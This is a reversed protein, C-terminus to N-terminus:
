EKINVPIGAITWVVNTVAAAVEQNTIGAIDRFQRALKNEPVIGSGVENSVLIIPCDANKISKVFEQICEFIKEKNYDKYLLNSIWLTLCDILIVDAQKSYEEIVEPLFIPEEITLWNEGREKKHAIVREKMEFDTPVSTAVFIKRVASNEGAPGAGASIKAALNLAYRSKGSKCGGVVLTTIKSM